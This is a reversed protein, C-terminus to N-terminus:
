AVQTVTFTQADLQVAVVHTAGHFDIFAQVTVGVRGKPVNLTKVVLKTASSALKKSSTSAKKKAM